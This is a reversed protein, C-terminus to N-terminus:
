RRPVESRKVQVRRRGKTLTASAKDRAAQSVQIKNNVKRAGATRAIRTAAGKRQIVDTRGELTAVGGQVRVTFHEAACKSAALRERIARELEADPPIPSNAARKAPGRGAAAGLALPVLTLALVRCRLNV